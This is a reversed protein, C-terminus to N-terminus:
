LLLAAKAQPPCAATICASAPFLTLIFKLKAVSRYSTFLSQSLLSHAINELLYMGNGNEEKKRQKWGPEPIKCLRTQMLKRLTVSKMRKMQCRCFSGRYCRCAAIRRQQRWAKWAPHKGPQLHRQHRAPLRAALCSLVVLPRTRLCM